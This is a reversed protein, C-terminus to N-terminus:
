IYCSDRLSVDGKVVNVSQRLLRFVEKNSNTGFQEMVRDVPRKLNQSNGPMKPAGEIVEQTFFDAFFDCDVQFNSDTAAWQMFIKMLKLEIRHEAIM